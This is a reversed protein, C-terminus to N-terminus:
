HRPVGSGDVGYNSATGECKQLRIGEFRQFDDDRVRNSRALPGAVEVFTAHVVNGTRSCQGPEVNPLLAANATTVTCADRAAREAICKFTSAADGGGTHEARTM